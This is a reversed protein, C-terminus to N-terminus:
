ALRQGVVAFDQPGNVMANLRQAAPDLGPIQASEPYPNLKLTEIKQFGLYRLLFALATPTLPNTHTHDHYFTHTAVMLNEPNPTELILLGGPQLARYAQMVLYFLGSFPLHEAVHFGSIVTLSRDPQDALVSVLDGQLATLGKAQCVGVMHASSDVGSAAFGMGQAFSLFEGRGCGLDLLRPSAPLPASLSDLSTTPDQASASVSSVRPQQGDRLLDKLRQRYPEFRAAIEESPGRHSDEFALYYADLAALSVISESEPAAYATKASNTGALSGAESQLRCQLAALETRLETVTQELSAAQAQAAGLQGAYRALIPQWGEIQKLAGAHALAVQWADARRYLMSLSKAAWVALVGLRMPRLLRHLLALARMVFFGTPPRGRARGEASNMLHAALLLIPVGCALQEKYAALGSADPDRGLVRRYAQYIAQDHSLTNLLARTPIESDYNAIQPFVMQKWDGWLGPGQRGVGSAREMAQARARVQAVVDEFRDM